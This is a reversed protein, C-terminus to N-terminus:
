KTSFIYRDDDSADDNDYIRLTDIKGNPWVHQSIWDIYYAVRTHIAPLTNSCGVGYSLIGVVKATRLYSRITQLPGGSDGQCSDKEGYPDYACYKSEDINYLSPISEFNRLHAYDMFVRQCESLPMTRLETKLLQNSLQQASLSLDFLQYLTM